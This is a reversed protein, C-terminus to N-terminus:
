RHATASALVARGDQLPDAAKMPYRRPYLENLKEGTENNAVIDGTRLAELYEARVEARTKGQAAVRTPFNRPAIEFQTLGIDGVQVDGDRRAQELEAVVEARTLGPATDQAPYRNPTIERLTRGLEGPAPADGRRQADVLEARVQDRTLGSPGGQAYAAGVTLVLLAAGAIRSFTM